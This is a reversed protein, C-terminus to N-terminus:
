VHLGKAEEIVRREYYGEPPPLEDLTYVLVQKGQRVLQLRLRDIPGNFYEAHELADFTHPNTHRFFDSRTTDFFSAASHAVNAVVNPLRHVDEMGHKEGFERIEQLVSPRLVITRGVFCLSLTPPM